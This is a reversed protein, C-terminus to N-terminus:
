VLNFIRHMSPKFYRGPKKTLYKGKIQLLMVPATGDYESKEQSVGTKSKSTKKLTIKSVDEKAALGALADVAFKNIDKSESIYVPFIFLLNFTAVKAKLCTGLPVRTTINSTSYISWCVKM